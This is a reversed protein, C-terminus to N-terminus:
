PRGGPRALRLAPAGAAPLDLRDARRVDFGIGYLSTWSHLKRGTPSDVFAPELADADGVARLVYPPSLPRLDVLVAEGASRIATQVTLRQGNVSVAEAGAAWLANVVEQLDRDYIRGQGTQGGRQVAPGEARADDLRVEIGPGRVAVTGAALELAAVRAAAARGSADASLAAARAERLRKGLAAAREALRDTDATRQRIDAVISRRGEELSSARARVQVAAVGTALGVATVALVVSTAVKSRSRPEESARRAAVEAYGPDLAGGSMDVLLSMSGDPRAPARGDAM